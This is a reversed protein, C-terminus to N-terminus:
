FLLCCVCDQFRPCLSVARRMKCSVTGLSFGRVARYADFYTQIVDLLAEQAPWCPFEDM